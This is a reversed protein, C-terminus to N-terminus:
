PSGCANNVLVDLLGYRTVAQEVLAAAQAPDRVDARFFDGPPMGSPSTRACVLVDAGAARFAGAVAAGIGRTGGTVVVARGAYDLPDM